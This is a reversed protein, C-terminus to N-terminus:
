NDGSGGGGVLAFAIKGRVPCCGLEARIGILQIADCSVVLEGLVIRGFGPIEVIHGYSKCGGAVDLRDVLSALASGGGSAPPAATMRRHRGVVWRHADESGDKFSSLLSEGQVRGARRVEECTLRGQLGPNL